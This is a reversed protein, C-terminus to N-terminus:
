GGGRRPGDAIRLRGRPAPRRRDPPPQAPRRRDPPPPRAAPSGYAPPPGGAIWGAGEIRAAPRPIFPAAPPLPSPRAVRGALRPMPSDCCPEAHAESSPSDPPESLPESTNDPGQESPSADAPLPSAIGGGGGLLSIHLGVALAPQLPSPQDGHLLAPANPPLPPASGGPITVDGTDLWRVCVREILAAASADSSM